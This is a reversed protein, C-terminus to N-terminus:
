FMISHCFGFLSQTYIRRRLNLAPTGSAATSMGPEIKLLGAGYQAKKCNHWKPSHWKKTTCYWKPGHWKIPAAGEGTGSLGNLGEGMYYKPVAWDYCQKAMQMYYSACSRMIMLYLEHASDM